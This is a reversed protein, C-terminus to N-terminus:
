YYPNSVEQELQMSPSLELKIVKLALKYKSLPHVCNDLQSATYAADMSGLLIVLIIKWSSSSGLQIEKVLKPLQTPAYFSLLTADM